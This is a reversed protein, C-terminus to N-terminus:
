FLVHWVGAIHSATFAHQSYHFLGDALLRDESRTTGTYRLDKRDQFAKLVLHMWVMWRRALSHGFVSSPTHRQRVIQHHAAFYLALFTICLALGLSIGLCIILQISGSSYTQPHLIDTKPTVLTKTLTHHYM